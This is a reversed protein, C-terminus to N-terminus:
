RPRVLTSVQATDDDPVPDPVGGVAAIRGRAVLEGRADPPVRVDFRAALSRGPELRRVVLATERDGTYGDVGTPLWAGTRVTGPPLVSRVTIPGPTGPGHNTLRVSYSLRGGPRVTPPAVISLELDAPRAPGEGSPRDAPRPSSRGSPHPSSRDAPRDPPTEAPGGTPIEVPSPSPEGAPDPAPAPPHEAPRDEGLPTTRGPEERVPRRYPATLPGHVMTQAQPAPRPTRGPSSAATRRVARHDPEPGDAFTRPFRHGVRAWPVYRAPLGGAPRGDQRSALAALLPLGVAIGAVAALAHKM